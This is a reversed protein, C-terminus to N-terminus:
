VRNKKWLKKAAFIAILFGTIIIVWDEYNKYWALLDRPAIKVIRENGGKDIVKVFVFSRLEQDQLIYPSEAVVWKRFMSSIRQRSEKVEYHDIGSAKDQTSFVAFWRGDAISEDRAIEPAFSEPLDIDEIKSIPVQIETSKRSILFESNFTKLKAETGKGDNRLVRADRVDLTGAGEQKVLFTTSFILGKDGKYGGPIIGSFVIEGTKNAAPRELWLSVTSNGDEINKLELLDAPFNIKGEIANILEEAEIFIGIKFQDKFGSNKEQEFFLEVAFVPTAVFLLAITLLHKKIKLQLKSKQM